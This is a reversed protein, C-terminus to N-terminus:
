SPEANMCRGYVWSSTYDDGIFWEVSGDAMQYPYLFLGNDANYWVLGDPNSITTYYEYTGAEYAESICVPNSNLSSSLYSLHGYTLLIVCMLQKNLMSVLCFNKLSVVVLSLFTFQITCFVLNLININYSFQVCCFFM